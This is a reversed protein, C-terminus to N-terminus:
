RNSEGRLKPMSSNRNEVVPLILDETLIGKSHAELVDPTLTISDVPIERLGFTEMKEWFEPFLYRTMQIPSKGALSRRPISNINSLVEGLADQGTLGMARLDYNNGIAKAKESNKVCIYRLLKHANEVGPKQISQQPDCYFLYTRRSGDKRMELGQADSFESGRDTRIIAAVKFFLEPGVAEDLRQLGEVMDMATKTEHYFALLLKTSCLFLTEMFPGEEESNYVTDLEAEAYYPHAASFVLYDDWTRGKFYSNDKKPLLKVEGRKKKERAPNRRKRSVKQRLSSNTIGQRAFLGADIYRYLTSASIGLESHTSVIVYPSLGKRILPPVVTCLHDKQENTLDLGTHAEQLAEEHERQAQSAAYLWHEYRCRGIDECHNCCKWKKLSRCSYVAYGPCHEHCRRRYDCKKYNACPLPLSCPKSLHVHRRIEDSITTPDRGMERALATLSDARRISSEVLSRENLDLNKGISM